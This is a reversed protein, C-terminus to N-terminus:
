TLIIEPFDNSAEWFNNACCLTVGDEVYAHGEDTSWAITM